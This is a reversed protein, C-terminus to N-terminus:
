GEVVIALRESPITLHAPLRTDRIKEFPQYLKIPGGDNGNFSGVVADSAREGLNAVVCARKGTKLNRFVSYRTEPPGNFQVGQDYLFDEFHITEKLPELISLMEKIYASLQRMPKYGMSEPVIGSGPFVFIQYGYRVANNVPTYDYPGPVVLGPLWEPFTYKLLPVHDETNDQWAWAM